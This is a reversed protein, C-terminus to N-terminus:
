KYVALVKIKIPPGGDSPERGTLYALGRWRAELAQLLPHHLIANVQETILRDIEAVQRHLARVVSGSDRTTAIGQLWRAAAADSREAVASM